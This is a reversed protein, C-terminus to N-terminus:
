PATAIRVHLTFNSLTKSKEPLFGKKDPVLVMKIKKPKSRLTVKLM